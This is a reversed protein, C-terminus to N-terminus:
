TNLKEVADDCTQNVSYIGAQFPLKISNSLIQLYINIIM